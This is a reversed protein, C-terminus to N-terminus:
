MEEMSRPEYNMLEGVLLSAVAHEREDVADLFDYGNRRIVKIEKELEASNHNSREGWHVVAPTIRCISRYLERFEYLFRAIELDTFKKLEPTTNNM